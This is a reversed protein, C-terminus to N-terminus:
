RLAEQIRQSTTAVPARWLLLLVVTPVAVLTAIGVWGPLTTVGSAIGTILLVLLWSVVLSVKVYFTHM